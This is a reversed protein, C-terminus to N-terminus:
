IHEGGYPRAWIHEKGYTWTGKDMHRKAHARAWIGKGINGEGHAKPFTDKDMYDMSRFIVLLFPTFMCEICVLLTVFLENKM